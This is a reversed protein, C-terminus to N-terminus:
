FGATRPKAGRDLLLRVVPLHDKRCAYFLPTCGRISAKEKNAGRDLLLRAVEEHGQECASHLPTSGSKTAQQTDAGHDLLLRAVELHGNECAFYLATRGVGSHPPWYGIRGKEEDREVTNADAGNDLLRLVVDFKGEV